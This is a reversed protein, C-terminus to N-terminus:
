PNALLDRIPQPIGGATLADAVLPAWRMKDSKIFAVQQEAVTMSSYPQQGAFAQFDALAGDADFVAEIEAASLPAVLEAELDPDCVQFGAAIMTQRDSVPLGARRLHTIWRQAKDEDCLGRLEVDLGQPGLLALYHPFIDGGELSIVSVGAADLDMGLKAALVRVALLDSFGEVLIVTEAFYAEASLSTAYRTLKRAQAPTLGTARVAETDGAGTRRLRTVDTPDVRDLIAATHTTLISQQATERLAHVAARQAHAHLALEPEDVLLLAKPNVDLLRLTLAFITAQAVGGSHSPIAMQPGRHSVMLALQGLIDEPQAVDVGLTYAGPDVKPLLRAFEDRLDGLLTQLLPAKALTDSAGTIANIADQLPQGLDLDGVLEQLLSERGGMAALRRADRWAPLWIVPLHERAARRV